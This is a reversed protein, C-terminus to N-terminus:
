RRGDYSTLWAPDFKALPLEKCHRLGFFFGSSGLSEWGLSGTLATKNVTDHASFLMLGASVTTHM